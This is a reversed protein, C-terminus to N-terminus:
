ADPRQQFRALDCRHDMRNQREIFDGFRMAQHFPAIMDALDHHPDGSLLVITARTNACLPSVNLDVDVFLFSPSGIDLSIESRTISMPSTFSDLCGKAQNGGEKPGEPGAMVPGFSM